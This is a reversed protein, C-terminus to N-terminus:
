SNRKMTIVVHNTLKTSNALSKHELSVVVKTFIWQEGKRQRFDKYIRVKNRRFFSTNNYINLLCLHHLIMLIKDAM